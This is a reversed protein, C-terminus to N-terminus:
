KEGGTTVETGHVHVHIQPPDSAKSGGKHSMAAMQEMPDPDMLKTVAMTVVGGFFTLVYKIISVDKTIVMAAIVVIFGVTIVYSLVPRIKRVVEAWASRLELNPEAKVPKKFIITGSLVLLFIGFGILVFALAFKDINGIIVEM